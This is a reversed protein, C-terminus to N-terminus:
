KSFDQPRFVDEEPTQFGLPLLMFGTRSAPAPFQHHPIYLVCLLNLFLVECKEKFCSSGLLCPFMKFSHALKHLNSFDIVALLVICNISGCYM